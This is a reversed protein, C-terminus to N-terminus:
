RENKKEIRELESKLKEGTIWKGQLMVGEIEKLTELNELPNERVMIFDAEYGEELKGAADELNFYRAVTVTGSKLIEYPSIGAEKMSAIEHHISFGPVNFVQPSDSSMLLPVNGEQLAMLIEERLALYPVVIDESLVGQDELQQKQRVWQDIQAEPLYKMEPEQKFTEAPIYGFFREFLTMTPAIYVGHEKALDVLEPLKDKDVQDALKMSFPGAKDPDKYSEDPLMAEVFGDIHEISHYGNEISARLGVDLSIHGGMKIDHEQAAQAIAQFKEMSLGPHLKLHDYGAEKQEQVMQSGHEPSKVSNGNLSPGAAFIRPGVLDGAAIKDRLTLHSPHGIMGRVTLVGNSLYLWMIDQLYTFDGDDTTPIHAHMESLGPLVYAGGADITSDAETDIQVDVRKIKGDEVLIMHNELIQSEESFSLINVNKILYQQAGASYSLFLMLFTLHRM